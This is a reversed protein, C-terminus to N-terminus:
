LQNFSFRRLSWASIQKSGFSIKVNEYQSYIQNGINYDVLTIDIECCDILMLAIFQRLKFCVVFLIYTDM